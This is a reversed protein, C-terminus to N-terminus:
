PHSPSTGPIRSYARPRTAASAGAFGLNASFGTTFRIESRDRDVAIPEVTEPTPFAGCAEGEDCILGDGDADTGAVLLYNGPAVGRFEFSYAGRSANTDLEAVTKLTAPDVLLIFHHGADAQAPGAGVQMIVSVDVEDHHDSTFTIKGTYLGDALGSRDVIARYTGLGSADVSEPAVSLWAAGDDSTFIAGTVTLPESDNGGNTATLQLESALFGFNLGDPDIRLVPNVVTSGSGGAVARNVARAADILGAGFSQSSGIPETIEHANIANDIDAPTLASNKGLMLAIVGSVHATAMSTGQYFAYGFGHTDSFFTSLVGDPFGNGDADRSFDGGPAALDITSGFNSYPALTRTPGVASVSIVGSFAAPYEPQSSAGNGAAAVFIMHENTRLDTILDQFTQSFGPGSLSMNAIRAPKAAGPGACATTRGAAYRLAEMIDADTGGGVGLVRLPMIKANWAAGAVGAADGGPQLSTRAAITGAVHTGHYSSGGPALDGPDEPDADCGDGDNASAPDSIFDFGTVLQGALDPHGHKVGTDVVAVVVGSNAGVVDWAQPLNIQGYHWQYPYFEDAPIAAGRRVYNLDASRVDPRGRLAAAIRRTDDHEARPGRADPQGRMEPTLALGLAEFARRREAVTQAAFLIPGEPGGSVHRMGVRRARAPGDGGASRREDRYRVLVQGPVFEVEDAAAAAPGQGITLTYNSFGSAVVVVVYYDGSAPVVIEETRGATASERVLSQDLRRLELDLDDTTGNGAIQLRITQRRALSVRFWDALDGDATTRGAPGGAPGAGPENLHGGLTVPNGIAQAEAATDNSAFPALDDNTDSDAASGAAASITGSVTFPPGGHSGGSGGCAAVAAVAALAAISLHRRATRVAM